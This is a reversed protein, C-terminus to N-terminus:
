GCKITPFRSGSINMRSSEMLNIKIPSVNPTEGPFARAESHRQFSAIRTAYSMAERTVCDQAGLASYVVSTTRAQRVKLQKLHSSFQTYTRCLSEVQLGSFSQRLSMMALSLSARCEGRCRSPPRHRPRELHFQSLLPGSIRLIPHTPHVMCRLAM